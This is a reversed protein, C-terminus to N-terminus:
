PQHKTIYLNFICNNLTLVIEVDSFDTLFFNGPNIERIKNCKM